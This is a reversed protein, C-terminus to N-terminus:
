IWVVSGFKSEDARGEQNKGDGVEVELLTSDFEM